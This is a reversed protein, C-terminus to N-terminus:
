FEATPPTFNSTYVAGGKTIRFEDYFAIGVKNTNGNSGKGINFTSTSEEAWLCSASTVEIEKIGNIFVRITSDQRTVAIHTWANNSIANTSLADIGYTGTGTNYAARFRLKNGSVSDWQLDFGKPSANKALEYGILNGSTGKTIPYIWFEICFDRDSFNAADVPVTWYAGSVFGSANGFKPHNTSIYPSGTGVGTVTWNNTSSDTFTTSNNAGNFHLLLSVTSLMSQCLVGIPFM